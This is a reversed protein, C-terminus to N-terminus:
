PTQSVLTFKDQTLATLITGSEDETAKFTVIWKGTYIDDSPTQYEYSYVYDADKTMLAGDVLNTGGPAEITIKCIAATESIIMIYKIATGAIYTKMDHTRVARLNDTFDACAEIRIQRIQIM